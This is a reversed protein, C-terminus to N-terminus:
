IRWTWPPLAAVPLHKPFWKINTDCAISLHVNWLPVIDLVVIYKAIQEDILNREDLLEWNTLHTWVNKKTWKSHCLTSGLGNAFIVHSSRCPMDKGTASMISTQQTQISILVIHNMVSQLWWCLLCNGSINGRFNEILNPCRVMHPPHRLFDDHHTWAYCWGNQLFSCIEGPPQLRVPFNRVPAPASRTLRHLQLQLKPIEPPISLPQFKPGQMPKPFIQNKTEMNCNRRLSWFIFTQKTALSVQLHWVWTLRTSNQHFESELVDVWQFWRRM